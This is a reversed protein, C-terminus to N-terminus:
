DGRWFGICVLIDAKLTFRVDRLRAV